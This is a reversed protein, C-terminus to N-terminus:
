RFPIQRSTAQGPRRTRGPRPEPGAHMERILPLLVEFPDSSRVLILTATQDTLMRPLRSAVIRTGGLVRDMDACLMEGAAKAMAYETM